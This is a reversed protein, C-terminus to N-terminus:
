KLQLAIQKDIESALDVDAGGNKTRAQVVVRSIKTDVADVKVWVNRTNVKALLVKKVVDQSAVVGNFDLVTKAAAFIQDVSREYRSEIKDKTFPMGAKSHGDLTVVCGTMVAVLCGAACIAFFIKKM